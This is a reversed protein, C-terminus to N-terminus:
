QKRKFNFNYQISARAIVGSLLVNRNSVVVITTDPFTHTDTQIVTVDKLPFALGTQLNLYLERIKYGFCFAPEFTVGKLHDYRSKIYDSNPHTDYFQLDGYTSYAFRGAVGFEYNDVQRGANFQWFLNRYRAQTVTSGEDTGGTFYWFNDVKYTGYGAYSELVNFFGKAPKFYGLGLRLAHDDKVINYRDGFFSIRRKTGQNLTGAAFVAFHNTLAYSLNLDLGGGVGFSTHLQQPQSHWPIVLAKPIYYAKQGHAAGSLFLLFPLLLLFFPKNAM